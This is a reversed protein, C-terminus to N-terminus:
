AIEDEDRTSRQQNRARASSRPTNGGCGGVGSQFGDKSETERSRTREERSLADAMRNKEGPMDCIEVLWHQLKMGLRRLHGNLRDLTMLQCLPKHDTFAIFSKGYLYYGFHRITEVLALAELETASYRQEVGRTQRSFFAAVEWVNGRRVQLVGGIGLGSADTVVSMADEPLPITLVCSNSICECIAHFASEMERTWRVRSPALRSTSPSLIATEAVLLEVYRRYLSIAGLFSRLGRKTTLRTYKALAEVRKEPISMCGNGVRHGLFEMTTGGWNCKAPNATLGAGKLRKLVERVHKKHDEWTSCYIVVDDMYPSCFSKCDSLLKTMLAQFVAPANRVGFPMRLFEYKGRHCVFCTKPIDAIVM